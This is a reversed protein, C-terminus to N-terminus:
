CPRKAHGLFAAPGRLPTITQARQAIIVSENSNRPMGGVGGQGCHVSLIFRQPCLFMKFQKVTIGVLKVQALLDMGNLLNDQLRNVPSAPTTRSPKKNNNKSDM